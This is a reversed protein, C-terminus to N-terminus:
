VSGCSTCRIPTNLFHGGHKPASSGQRSCRLALCIDAAQGQGGGWSLFSLVLVMILLGGASMLAPLYGRMLTSSPREFPAVSVQTVPSRLRVLGQHSSMQITLVHNGAAANPLPFAADRLGPTELGPREAPVGNSGILKGNWYVASSAYASVVVAAPERVRQDLRVNGILWIMRAQPDVDHLPQVTCASSPVWPPGDCVRWPGVMAPAAGAPTELTLVLIWGLLLM